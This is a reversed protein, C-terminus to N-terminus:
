QCSFPVRKSPSLQEDADSSVLPPLVGQLSLVIAESPASSSAAAGRSVDSSILSTNAGAACRMSAKPFSLVLGHVFLDNAVPADEEAKPPNPIPCPLVFSNRVRRHM